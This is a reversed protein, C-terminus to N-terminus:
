RIEYVTAFDDGYVMKFQRPNDQLYSYLGRDEPVNRVHIYQAGFDEKLVRQVDNEVDLVERYLAYLAPDHDRMFVPNIGLTYVNHQNYFFLESFTQYDTLFFESGAPTNERLWLASGENHM